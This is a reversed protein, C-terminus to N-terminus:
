SAIAKVAAASKCGVYVSIEKEFENINKGLPAVWNTHFAEKIFDMEEKHTTPTALWIKKM